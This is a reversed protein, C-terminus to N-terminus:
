DEGFIFKTIRQSIKRTFNEIDNRTWNDQSLVSMERSVQYHSDRYGTKDKISTQKKAWWTALASGGSSKLDRYKPIM